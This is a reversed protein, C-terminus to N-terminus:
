FPTRPQQPLRGGGSHEPEGPFPSGGCRLRRGSGVRDLRQRPHRFDTELGPVGGNVTSVQAQSIGSLGALGRTGSPKRHGCGSSQPDRRHHRSSEVDFGSPQASPIAAEVTVKEGVQNRKTNTRTAEVAAPDIDTATVQAGLRHWLRHRPGTRRRSPPNTPCSNPQRSACGVHPRRQGGARHPGGPRGIVEQM